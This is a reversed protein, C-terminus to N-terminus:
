LDQDARLSLNRRHIENLVVDSNSGDSIGSDAFVSGSSNTSDSTVSSSRSTLQPASSSATALSMNRKNATATRSWESNEALRLKGCCLYTRWQKRVNEKVACHFVFILFGQLSNFISFLYVFPLYLPGWAFLAFGWTLGLLVILGAISRLDTMVGRNPSQNQPNQKKIRALQVMVMIFVILCLTFILLFYAVVGVYFAIDNRLWCFDDTTGDNFRGYTVLGYNDKDVSIVIIVVILPLGWGMLSFKLMYRSLYPTFVQVVSLYMHLAELGAWTFSTLLFYHLFFATSICLGVAPYLALWGDLLFVLNLFLLSMCLQVLIKAPIDRLLKEFSLYTLLTVALFIASIGCGIYTIFTLIQAHQRDILGERSLDLLIAFSTLHNCSCITEEATTNVVFCGDSRWGGGGDYLSYDWYVCSASHNIPDINRITFQINETLNSISLNAISSGLVPSVITQNNLTTDQFLTSTTYFTFQVRSAQQQEEPSLGSTLSSPLFVSGLVSDSRKSRSRRRTSLQVDNTNFINVSTAPFNTGDVTSVALVLLDSSLVAGLVARNGSVVLKQGLDDVLLSLRNASAALAEPNGGMINSVIEIAKQGVSQSVSPGELLRELQGVVQEVESSDLQSANQTQNLLQEAQEEQSQSPGVTTASTTKSVGPTATTTTSSLTTTQVTTTSSTTTVKTTANDIQAVPVGDTTTTATTTTTSTTSATTTVNVGPANTTASIVTTLRSTTSSVNVSIGTTENQNIVASVTTTAATSNTDAEDTATINNTVSMTTNNGTQNNLPAVSPRTTNVVPTTTTTANNLTTNDQGETTSTTMNTYSSTTNQQIEGTTENHSVTQNQFATVNEPTTYNITATTVNNDVTVNPSATFTSITANLTTFSGNGLNVTNNAVTVNHETTNSNSATTHNNTEETVNHAMTLNPPPTFTSFTTNSTTVTSNQLNKGATTVNNITTGNLSPAVTSATTVNNITTGNPSPTVTSATTVNNITTGNPSPTVTSVTTVNNITTGNPSPTVTSVTTVNNITTGSQSPTVTSVTTVNNITTGNPSPTVTSVTTVNNITTGSPSPTVTSVTTVNNITTGNPSPTVTSVTTVNNITTGNPSPTVTSVTTVNNITTGNPSPTVTSVILAATTSPLTSNEPSLTKFGTTTSTNQLKTMETTTLLTTNASSTTNQVIKSDSGAWTISQSSTELAPTTSTQTSNITTLPTTMESQGAVQSVNTLSVVTTSTATTKSQGTTNTVSPPSTGPTTTITNNTTTTPAPTSQKTTTSEPTCSDTLLVALTENQECKLLTPDPQCLDSAQLDSDVWTLNSMLLTRLTLGPDGCVMIRTLPRENTVIDMGAIVDQVINSLFCGDVPGSMELIVMCSYLRQQTGHCELHAGKYYKKIDQCMSGSTQNCTRTISPISLMLRLVKINVVSSNINIRTAYFQSRCSGAKSQSVPDSDPEIISCTLKSSKDAQCIDDLSSTSTCRMFGGSSPLVDECLDRGVREVEGTIRGQVEEDGAQQLASVGALQLECASVAQSLQLLVYCTTNRINSKAKCNVEAIQLQGDNQCFDELGTVPCGFANSVLKYIDQETKDGEPAEVTISMWYYANKNSCLPSVNCNVFSSGTVVSTQTSTHTFPTAIVPSSTSTTSPVECLLYPDKQRAKLSSIGWYRANWGIVSGDECFGHYGVDDWMRFMYLEITGPTVGRHRKSSRCGLRLSSLSPIAKAIVTSEAILEGDVELSFSNRQEDRRLCVRHWNIPSLRHPFRHRVRLLWGYLADNDGELGLEPKPAHVSSYSFAVWAGPVVVRIDVCVTMQFIQPMTVWDQLTWRNECGTLVAKTDGLFYGLAKPPTAALLLILM